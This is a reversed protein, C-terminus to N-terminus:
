TIPADQISEVYKPDIKKLEEVMADVTTRIQKETHNTTVFFRLRVASEEVAPYLIPQVNIGHELLGQSLKLADISSGMIIPVVPSDHSMGTNLGHQKALDLLM